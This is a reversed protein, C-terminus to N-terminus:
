VNFFQILNTDIESGKEESSFCVIGIWGILPPALLSIPPDTGM